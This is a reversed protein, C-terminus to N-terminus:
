RSVDYCLLVNQDRLYLKGGAIVPHAWAQTDSRQPQDFSGTQIMGETTAKILAIPGKESRLYFHGDAFATAGKGISRENFALEGTKIDLCRFTGGSSGFVYGDLLVVGGHHNAINQNAYLEETTWNDGSKSIRFANCGVGYSSTVFVIDDQLVPTAVVATKGQREARWLVKGTDPEIGAVSDGTLQIYQRTGHITAIIVSSYGATDTWDGTQWIKEGSAHDLALVTGHKGGPTVVVRNGDVLPSESYRWGSMMKGGFDQELNVSWLKEGNSANLCALDGQQNLVFVQGGDVTPTSRPGPYGRHGGAEGIRTKWVPSGDSEKLAIAYCGDELDGLTFIKGSAIAVSSYGIGLGETSWALPPGGEPWEQLLGTEKSKADRDSGRWQPWDDAVGVGPIFCMLTAFVFAPVFRQNM